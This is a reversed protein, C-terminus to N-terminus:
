PCTSECAAFVGYVPEPFVYVIKPPLFATSAFPRICSSAPTRYLLTSSIKAPIIFTRAAHNHLLYFAFVACNWTVQLKM